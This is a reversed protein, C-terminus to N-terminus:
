NRQGLVATADGSEGRMAAMEQQVIRGIRLATATDTEKSTIDMIRAVLVALERGNIASSKQLKVHWAGEIRKGLMDVSDRLDNLVSSDEAGDRLLRGLENMTNAATQADSKASAERMEQFLAYARVRLDPTDKQAAREAHRKVIADILAIPERLDLLGPDNIAEMYKEALPGLYKSHRGTKLRNQGNDGNHYRCKDYGKTRPRRCREHRQKSQAMCRKEDPLDVKSKLPKPQWGGPPPVKRPPKEM